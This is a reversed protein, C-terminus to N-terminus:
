THCPEEQKLLEPSEWINGIVELDKNMHLRDDLRMRSLRWGCGDWEVDEANEPHHGYTGCIYGGDPLKKDHKSSLIDGEYIERGNKDKLGTFQMLETKRKAFLKQDSTLLPVLNTEEYNWVMPEGQYIGVDQWMQFGDWARFKIERM